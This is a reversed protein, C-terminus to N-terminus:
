VLWAHPRVQDRYTEILNATTPGPALLIGLFGNDGYYILLLERGIPRSGGALKTVADHPIRLTEIGEYGAGPNRRDAYEVFVVTIALDSLFVLCDGCARRKVDGVFGSSATGSTSFLQREGTRM